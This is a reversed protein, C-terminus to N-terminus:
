SSLCFLPLSPCLIREKLAKRSAMFVYTILDIETKSTKQISKLLLIDKELLAIKTTEDHLDSVGQEVSSIRSEMSSWKDDLTQIRSNTEEIFPRLARIEELMTELSIPNSFKDPSPPDHKLRKNM